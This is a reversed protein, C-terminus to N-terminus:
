SEFYRSIDFNMDLLARFELVGPQRNSSDRAYLSNTTVYNLDVTKRAVCACCRIGRAAVCKHLGDFDNMM